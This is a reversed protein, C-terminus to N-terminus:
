AVVAELWTTLEAIVEARNTENLMEHRGGPYVKLTLSTLGAARYRDMLPTLLALGQNIPDKDGVFVYLPLDKRIKAIEAPDRLRALLRSFSAESGPKRSFGCLPDAIYADVEAPDRSLWDFPTRPPEGDMTVEDLRRAPGTRDGFAATGSLVLGDIADAHDFVYAQAFMSGLSHGMLVLPLGPNAERALDTLARLDEVILEAGREGFDGFAEPSPATRGHGRHDNAYVVWGKAMLGELRPRYRGAHEGMGHAVQLIARPTTAPDRWLYGAITAGDAGQFSFVHEDSM